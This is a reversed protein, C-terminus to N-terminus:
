DRNDNVATECLVGPCASIREVDAAIEGFRVTPIGILVWAMKPPPKTDLPKLSAPGDEKVSDILADVEDGDYGTGLLGAPDFEKLEGLLESLLRDDREALRSVENDGVLVKIARPDDPELDLRKVAIADLGAKRAAAVVGHGCLITNDKAVVVNRYVGHESLSEVLHEIQGAPHGNYNRSHPKLSALKVTELVLRDEVKLQTETKM